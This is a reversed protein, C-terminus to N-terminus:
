DFSTLLVRELAPGARVTRSEDPGWACSWRVAVEIEDRTVEGPRFYENELADMMWGMLEERDRGRLVLMKVEACLAESELKLRGGASSALRAYGTAGLRRCQDAHIREHLYVVEEEHAGLDDRFRHLPGVAPLCLTMADVEPALPVLFFIVPVLLLLTMAAIPLVGASAAVLGSVTPRRLWRRRRDSNGARTDENGNPSSLQRM